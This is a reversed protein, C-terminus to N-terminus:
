EAVRKIVVFSVDDAPSGHRLLEGQLAACIDQASEDCTDALCGEVVRPFFEGDAHDSLGDTHLLLLDGPSLLNIESITYRRKYGVLSPYHREPDDDSPLMGVPPFNVIQEPSITMFRGYERSFVQPPPHAASIFRFRGQESIEGYILSFYKNVSTSRVFRTNIHEFLRTTIEGFMDLEYYTGLLFSQHLMAAIVADTPRHGVVDAVLVGARHRILRLKHVIDELGREKADEIRTDLDYRRNFDVFLIHDGGLTGRLPMQLGHIDVGDLRPIKDPTPQINSLVEELNKLEQEFDPIKNKDKVRDLRCFFLSATSPM